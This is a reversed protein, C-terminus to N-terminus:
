WVCGKQALYTDQPGNAVVKGIDAVSPSKFVAQLDAVSVPEPYLLAQAPVPLALSPGGLSKGQGKLEMVTGIKGALRPVQSIGIGLAGNRELYGWPPLFLRSCSVSSRVCRTLKM